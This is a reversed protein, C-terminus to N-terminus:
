EELDNERAIKIMKKILDLNNIMQCALQATETADSLEQFIFYCTDGESNPDIGEKFPELGTAIRSALILGQIGYGNFYYDNITDTGYKKKFWEWNSFSLRVDSWKSDRNDILIFPFFTTPDKKNIFNVNLM